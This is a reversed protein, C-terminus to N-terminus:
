WFTFLQKEAKLYQTKSFFNEGLQVGVQERKNRCYSFCVM